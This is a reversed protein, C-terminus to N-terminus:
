EYHAGKLFKLGWRILELLTRFESAINGLADITNEIAAAIM